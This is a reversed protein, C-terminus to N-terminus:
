PYEEVDKKWRRLLEDTFMGTGTNRLSSLEEMSVESWIVREEGDKTARDVRLSVRKEDCMVILRCPGLEKAFDILEHLM